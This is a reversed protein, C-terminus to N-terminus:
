DMYEAAGALLLAQITDPAHGERLLVPWAAPTALREWLTVEEETALRCLGDLGPGFLMPIARPSLSHPPAEGQLAALLLHPESHFRVLAAYRGVRLLGGARSPDFGAFHRVGESARLTAQEVRCLTLVHSPDPLHGAIFDLFADAEAAFFSGTGGGTSVWKDLLRQREPVPLLSLTLRAGKAARGVCWSRQVDQTFRFGPSEALSALSVEEGAALALGRRPDEDAPERVLRGLATQFDLLPM